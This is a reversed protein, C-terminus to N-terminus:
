KQVLKLFESELDSKVQVFHNVDIGSEVLAKNIDSVVSNDRLEAYVLGDRLSVQEVQSLKSLQSQLLEM